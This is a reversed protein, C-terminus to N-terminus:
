KLSKRCNEILNIDCHCDVESFLKGKLNLTYNGRGRYEVLIERKQPDVRIISGELSRGRHDPYSVIRKGAEALEERFSQYVIEKM